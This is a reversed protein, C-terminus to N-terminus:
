STYNNLEREQLPYATADRSLTCLKISIALM